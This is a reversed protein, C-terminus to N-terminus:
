HASLNFRNLAQRPQTYVATRAKEEADWEAERALMEMRTKAPLAATLEDLHQKRRRTNEGEAEQRHRRTEELAATLPEGGPPSVYSVPPYM